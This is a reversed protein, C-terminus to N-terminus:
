ADFKVGLLRGTKENDARGIRIVVYGLTELDEPYIVCLHVEYPNLHSGQRYMGWPCGLVVTKCRKELASLTEPLEDRAVHEPGHWWFGIDYSAHPLELTDIERVDGCIVHAVGGYNEFAACNPPWIELLTIEHGFARLEPGGHFRKPTAGIYLVTGPMQWLTAVCRMAEVMWVDGMLAFHNVRFVFGDVTCVTAHNEDRKSAGDDLGGSAVAIGGVGNIRIADTSKGAIGAVGTDTDLGREGTAERRVDQRAACRDFQISGRGMDCGLGIALAIQTAASEVDKDATQAGQSEACLQTCLGPISQRRFTYTTRCFGVLRAWRRGLDVSTSLDGDGSEAGVGPGGRGGDMGCWLSLSSRGVIRRLLGLLRVRIYYGDAGRYGAGRTRGGIALLGVAGPRDAADQIGFLRSASARWDAALAAGLGGACPLANPGPQETDACRVHGRAWVM